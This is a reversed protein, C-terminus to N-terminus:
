FDLKIILTKHKVIHGIKIEHSYIVKLVIFNNFDIKCQLKFIIIIFYIILLLKGILYPPVLVAYIANM